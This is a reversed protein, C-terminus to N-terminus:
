FALDSEDSVARDHSTSALSAADVKMSSKEAYKAHGRRPNVTVLVPSECASCYCSRRSCRIRVCSWSRSRSDIVACERM